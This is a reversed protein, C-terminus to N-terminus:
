NSHLLVFDREILFNAIYIYKTYNKFRYIKFNINYILIMFFDTGLIFYTKEIIYIYIYKTDYSFKENTYM